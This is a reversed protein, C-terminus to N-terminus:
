IAEAVLWTKFENVLEKDAEVEDPNKMKVIDLKDLEFFINFKDPIICFGM